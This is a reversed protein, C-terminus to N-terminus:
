MLKFGIDLAERISKEQQSVINRVKRKLVSWAKEIPNLNPSYTPLYMLRANYRLALGDIEKGKHISANDLILLHKQYQGNKDKTLSKLLYELWGAFSSRNCSGHFIM